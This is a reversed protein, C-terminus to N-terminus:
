GAGSRLVSPSRPSRRGAAVRQRKFRRGRCAPVCCARSAPTALPVKRDAATFALRRPTSSERRRDAVATRTIRVPRGRRTHRADYRQPRRVHSGLRSSTMRRRLSGAQRFTLAVRILRAELEARFKRWDADSLRSLRDVQEVLLVDGPRSDSCNLALQSLAAKMKSMRESLQRAASLPSLRLRSARESPTRSM